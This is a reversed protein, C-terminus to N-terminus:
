TQEGRCRKTREAPHLQSPPLLRIVAVFVNAVVTVLMDILDIDFPLQNHPADRIIRHEYLQTEWVSPSSVTCAPQAGPFKSTSSHVFPM